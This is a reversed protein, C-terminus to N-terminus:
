SSSIDITLKYNSLFDAVTFTGGLTVSLELGDLQYPRGALFEREFVDRIPM